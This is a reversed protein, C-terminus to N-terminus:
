FCKINFFIFFSLIIYQSFFQPFRYINIIYIFNNATLFSPFADTPPNTIVISAKQINFANILAIAIFVLFGVFLALKVVGKADYKLHSPTARRRSRSPTVM